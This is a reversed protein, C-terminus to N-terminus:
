GDASFLQLLEAMEGDALPPTLRCVALWTGGPQPSVRVVRARRKGDAWPGVRALQLLVVAGPEPARDLALVVEVASFGKVDAWGPRFAPRVL